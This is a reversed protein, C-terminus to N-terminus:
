PAFLGPEVTECPTRSANQSILKLDTELAREVADLGEGLRVERFVELLDVDGGQDRVAVVFWIRGMPAEAWCDDFSTVSEVRFTYGPAGCPRTPVKLSSNLESMSSKM